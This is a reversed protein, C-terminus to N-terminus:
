HHTGTALSMTLLEDSNFKLSNWRNGFHKFEACKVLQKAESPRRGEEKFLPLDAVVGLLM